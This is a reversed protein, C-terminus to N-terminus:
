ENQLQDGQSLDRLPLKLLESLDFECFIAALKPLGNKKKFAKWAKPDFCDIIVRKMWGSFGLWFGFTGATSFGRRSVQDRLIALVEEGADGDIVATLIRQMRRTTFFRRRWGTVSEWYNTNPNGHMGEVPGCYCLMALIVPLSPERPEEGGYFRLYESASRPDLPQWRIPDQKPLTASPKSM